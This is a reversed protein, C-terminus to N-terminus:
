VYANVGSWLYSNHDRKEPAPKDDEVDRQGKISGDMDFRIVDSSQVGNADPASGTYCM